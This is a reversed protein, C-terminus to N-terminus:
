QAQHKPLGSWNKSHKLKKERGGRGKTKIVKNNDSNNKNNNIIVTIMIEMSNQSQTVPTQAPARYPQRPEHSTAPLAPKQPARAVQTPTPLELGRTGPCGVEM